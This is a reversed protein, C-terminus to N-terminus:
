GGVIIKYQQGPVLMDDPTLGNLVYFRELGQPVNPMHAVVLDEPRDGARAMMLGIRQGRLRKAEDESLQRFSNVVALFRQDAEASLNQAAFIFRFVNEGVRILVVRFTWDPGRALGMAAPLNGVTTDQLDTIAIGEIPNLALLAKLPRDAEGRSSDLRLAETGGASVGLVAHPSNELAFGEPADFTFRLRPHLFSRGRILGQNADEGYAIGNIAQLWQMRNAEGVGPAGFQRAVAIARDLREPTTPHTSLIDNKESANPDEVSNRMRSTRDLAVLFRVAGHAEYGAKAIARVGLEDADIEQQRSFSALAIRGQDRMLRSAGPNALVESHVRSVLVSRSELEARELAHRGTVHAIEHAIVSAAEATDNALALLGRTVYVYGNPLAFANVSPSNLITVRYTENPRDSVLRLRNAIESLLAQLRPARYEGGFSRILRQHERELASGPELAPTTGPLEVRLPEDTTVPITDSVCAVLLGALMVPALARPLASPFVQFHVTTLLMLNRIAPVDLSSRCIGSERDDRPSQTM